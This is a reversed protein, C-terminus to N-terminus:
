SCVKLLTISHWRDKWEQELQNKLRGPPSWYSPYWSMPFYAKRRERRVYMEGKGERGWERKERRKEQVRKRKWLQVDMVAAVPFCYFDAQPPKLYSVGLRLHMWAECFVTCVGSETFSLHLVQMKVPFLALVSTMGLQGRVQHVSVQRSRAPVQWKEMGQELHTKGQSCLCPRALTETTRVWGRTELCKLVSSKWCFSHNILSCIKRATQM